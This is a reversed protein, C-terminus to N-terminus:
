FDDAPLQQPKAGRACALSAVARDEDGAQRYCMSLALWLSQSHEPPLRRAVEELMKAAQDYSEPRHLMEARLMEIVLRFAGLEGLQDISDLCAMAHELMGLEYYGVAHRLRTTIRVLQYNNIQM